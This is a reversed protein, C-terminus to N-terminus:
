LTISTRFQRRTNLIEWCDEEDIKLCRGKFADEVKIIVFTEPGRSMFGTLAHNVDKVAHIRMALHGTLPKRMNPM